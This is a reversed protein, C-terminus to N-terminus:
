TNVRRGNVSLGKNTGSELAEIPMTYTSDSLLLFVHWHKICFGSKLSPLTPSMIIKPYSLLVCMHCFDAFSSPPFPPFNLVHTPFWLNGWGKYSVSCTIDSCCIYGPGGYVTMLVTSDLVLEMSAMTCFNDFWYMYIIIETRGSLALFPLYFHATFGM